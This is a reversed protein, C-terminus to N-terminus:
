PVPVVYYAGQLIFMEDATTVGGRVPCADCVGDGAGPFSDCMSDDGDCLLGPEAGNVCAVLADSCPGGVGAFPPPGVPSTSQLKLPPSLPTSANDFVSCYLFTRDEDDPDDYELPPDHYQNLPDSYETSLYLPADTRSHPCTQSGPLTCPTNPPGWTRWQVGWQHTHSTLLFLRTGQPATWTRCYERTEFPSVNQIFISGSDFIPQVQYLQDAPAAFELNEYISMTTDQSTLNFAHSNWVLIGTMPLISYVGDAFEQEFVPVGAGTFTPTTGSGTLGQGPNNSLDGPGFGLCAVGSQRDTSCGLNLGTAPDVATPDCTQSELPNSPDQFKYTWDGWAADDELAAGLYIRIFAHHSQPDQHLSQKHYRFCEGSTNTPAFNTCAAGGLCDAPTACPRLPDNECVLPCPVKASEPVLSTATLDYYTAFCVEDESQAPLDWPNSWFQAGVGAGPPDPPPITLPTPDPLCGDLLEATGAVSADESAGGHIWLRVAELHDETLPTAGNPMASGGNLPTGLTAASLKEFLFSLDKDGPQVRVKNDGSNASPVGVLNAYSNGDTLELSGAPSDADHCLSNTCSYVPSDFIVAQITEFTSDYSPGVCPGLTCDANCGDDDALNGDDCEEGIEGELNGCVQSPCGALAEAGKGKIFGIENTSLHAPLFRSCYRENELATVDGIRLHVWVELQEGDVTWAWNAGKATIGLTGLKFLIKTVGGRTGEKDIYKYGKVKDPEKGIVTWLTEDLQIAGTKGGDPGVGRVLLTAGDTRPDGPVFALGKGSKFVFKEKGPKDTKVMLKKGPLALDSAHPFASTPVLALLAVASILSTIARAM